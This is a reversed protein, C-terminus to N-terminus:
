GSSSVLQVLTGTLSFLCTHLPPPLSAKMKMELHLRQKIRDKRLGEMVADDDEEDKDLEAKVEVNFHKGEEEHDEM